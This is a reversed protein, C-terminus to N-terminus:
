VFAQLIQDIEQFKIENRFRHYLSHGSAGDSKCVCRIQCVSVLLHISGPRKNEHTESLTRRPFHSLSLAIVFACHLTYSKQAIIYVQIAIARHFKRIFHLQCTSEPVVVDVSSLKESTKPSSNHLPDFDLPHKRTYKYGIQTFQQSCLLLLKRHNSQFVRLM